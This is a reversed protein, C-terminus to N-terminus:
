EALLSRKMQKTKQGLKDFSFKPGGFAMTLRELWQSIGGTVKSM